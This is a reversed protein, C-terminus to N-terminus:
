GAVRDALGEDIADVAFVCWDAALKNRFYKAPKGSRISLVNYLFKRSQESSHGASEIDRPSGSIDMHGDHLILSAQPWMVRHDAAQLILAGMSAAQGTVTITITNPSRSIAGYIAVGDVWDGGPTNLLIEIDDPSQELIAMANIVQRYMGKNVPGCLDLTRTPLWIGFDVLCQMPDVKIM